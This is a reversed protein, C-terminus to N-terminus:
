RVRTVVITGRVTSGGPITYIGRAPNAGIMRVGQNFLEEENLEIVFQQKAGFVGIQNLKGASADRGIDTVFIDGQANAMFENEGVGFNARTVTVSRGVELSAVDLKRTMGGSVSM